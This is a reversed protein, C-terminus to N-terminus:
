RKCPLFNDQWQAGAQSTRSSSVGVATFRSLISYTQAGWHSKLPPEDVGVIIVRVLVIFDRYEFFTYSTIRHFYSITTSLINM